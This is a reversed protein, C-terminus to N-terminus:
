AVYSVRTLTISRHCLRMNVCVSLGVYVCVCARVRVYVCVVGVVCLVCRHASMRGVGASRLDQQVGLLARHERDAAAGSVGFLFRPWLIAGLRTSLCVCVRTMGEPHPLTRQLALLHVSLRTSYQQAAAHWRLHRTHVTPTTHHLRAHTHTHTRVGPVDLRTSIRSVLKPAAPSAPTPRVVSTYLHSRIRASNRSLSLSPAPLCPSADCSTIHPPSSLRLSAGFSLPSFVTPDSLPLCLCAPCLTM